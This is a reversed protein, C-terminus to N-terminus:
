DPAIAWNGARKIQVKYEAYNMQKSDTPKYGIIKTHARNNPEGDIEPNNNIPDHEVKQPLSLQELLLVNFRWIYFDEPIKYGKTKLNKIKGILARCSHPTSYKCWDSSLNDDDKPTNSFASTTPSKDDKLNRKSVRVFLCHYINISEVDWM